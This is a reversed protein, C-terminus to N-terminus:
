SFAHLSMTEWEFGLSSASETLLFSNKFIIVSSSPVLVRSNFCIIIIIIINVIIIFCLLREEKSRAWGRSINGDDGGLLASTIPVATIMVM